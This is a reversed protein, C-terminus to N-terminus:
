SKQFFVGWIAFIIIVTIILSVITVIFGPVHFFDAADEFVTDVFGFSSGILKITTWIRGLTADYIKDFWSADIDAETSTRLDGIKSELTSLKNFSDNFETLQSNDISPNESKYESILTVGGIIFATFLIFGIIYSRLDVETM